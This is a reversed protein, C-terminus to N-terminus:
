QLYQLIISWAETLRELSWAANAPSTSPLPIIERQTLPYQYKQYLQSAKLGNSFIREISATQFIPTLDSPIVDRISSDSSGKIACQCVVDWLAIRHRLLLDTKEAITQPIPECLLHSLVAWFRNKPHGYFFENERSKVSPLTGLILIRSSSDFIPPFPHAITQYANERM